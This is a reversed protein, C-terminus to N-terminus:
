GEKVDKYVLNNRWNLFDKKLSWSEFYSVKKHINWAPKM